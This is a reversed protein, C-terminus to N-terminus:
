NRVSAYYQLLNHISEKGHGEHMEELKTKMKKPMDRRDNMYDELTYKLYLMWQGALLGVDDATSLGGEEHCKGCYEEHLEEGMAVKSKDYDQEVAVVETGAFVDAMAIIEELSYGLAIRSMITSYRPYAELDEYAENQSLMELVNELGEEDDTYKYALMTGIFYNKTMGALSPIAPGQSVGDAGHCAVCTNTLMQPSAMEAQGVTPLGFLLIFTCFLLKSKKIMQIAENRIPLPTNKPLIICRNAIKRLLIRYDAILAVRASNFSYGRIM